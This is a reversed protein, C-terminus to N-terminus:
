IGNLFDPYENELASISIPVYLIYLFFLPVMYDTQKLDRNSHPCKNAHMCVVSNNEVNRM